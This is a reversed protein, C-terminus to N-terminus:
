KLPGPTSIIGNRMSATLAAQAEKDSPAATGGTTAAGAVLQDFSINNARMFSLVSSVDPVSETKPVKSARSDTDPNTEAPRKATSPGSQSENDPQTQLDSSSNGTTDVTPTQTMTATPLESATTDVTPTLAM